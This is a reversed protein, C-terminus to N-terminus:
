TDAVPFAYNTTRIGRTKIGLKIIGQSKCLRMIDYNDYDNLHTKNNDNYNQTKKDNM